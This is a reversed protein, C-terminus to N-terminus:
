VKQPSWKVIYVYLCSDYTCKFSIYSQVEIFFYIFIGEVFNPIQGSKLFKLFDELYNWRDPLKGLFFSSKTFDMLSSENSNTM